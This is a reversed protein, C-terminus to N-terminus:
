DYLCQRSCGPISMKAVDRIGGKPRTGSQSGLTSGLTSGMPSKVSGAHQEGAGSGGTTEAKQAQCCILFM